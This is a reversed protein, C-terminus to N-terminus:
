WCNRVSRACTDPIGVGVRSSRARMSQLPLFFPEFESHTFGCRGSACIVFIFSPLVCRLWLCSCATSMSDPATTASRSSARHPRRPASGDGLRHTRSLVPFVVEGPSSALTVEGCLSGHQTARRFTGSAASATHLSLRCHAKDGLVL